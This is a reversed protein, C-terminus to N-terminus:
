TVEDMVFVYNEFSDDAEINVGLITAVGKSVKLDTLETMNELVKSNMRIEKIQKGQSKLYNIDDEIKNLLFEM